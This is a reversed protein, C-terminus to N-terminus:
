KYEERVYNTHRMHNKFEDVFDANEYVEWLAPSSENEMISMILNILRDYKDARTKYFNFICTTTLLYEDDSDTIKLLKKHAKNCKPCLTLEHSNNM